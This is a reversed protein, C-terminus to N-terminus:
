LLNGKRADHDRIQVDYEYCTNIGNNLRARSRRVVNMYTLKSCLQTKILSSQTELGDMAGLTHREVIYSVSGQDYHDNQLSGNSCCRGSDEHKTKCKM